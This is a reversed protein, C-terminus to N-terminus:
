NPTVATFKQSSSDAVTERISVFPESVKIEVDTFVNRLDHMLCDLYLEGVGHISHEGTQEVSVQSIPYAKTVRKLGNIMKPLESPNLPEVAIKVVPLTGFDLPKFINLADQEVGKADFLTCTKMVTKDIGTILVWNGAYARDVEIRYRGGQQILFLGGVTAM